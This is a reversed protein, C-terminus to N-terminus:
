EGWVEAQVKNHTVVAKRAEHATANIFAQRFVADAKRGAAPRERKLRRDWARRRRWRRLRERM